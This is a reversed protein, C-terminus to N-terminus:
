TGGGLRAFLPGVVLMCRTSRSRFSCGRWQVQVQLNLAMTPISPLYVSSAFVDLGPPSGMLWHRPLRQPAEATCPM